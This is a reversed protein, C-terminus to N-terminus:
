CGYKTFNDKNEPDYKVLKDGLEVTPNQEHNEM